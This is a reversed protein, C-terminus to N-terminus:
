PFKFKISNKKISTTKLNQNFNFEPYFNLLNYIILIVYILKNM